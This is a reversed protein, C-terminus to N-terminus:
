NGMMVRKILLRAKSHKLVRGTQLKPKTREYRLVSENIEKAIKYVFYYFVYNHMDKEDKYFESYHRKGYSQDLLQAPLIHFNKDKIHSLVTRQKNYVTKMNGVTEYQDTIKKNALRELSLELPVDLFFNLAEKRIGYGNLEIDKFKAIAKPIDKYKSCNLFDNSHRYRDAIILVNQYKSLREYNNDFWERRNLMCLRIFKERDRYNTIDGHHLFDLIQEGTKSKYFPFHVYEVRLNPTAILKLADVLSKTFTTKGAGDLGEIAIISIM